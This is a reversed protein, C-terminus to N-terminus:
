CISIFSGPRPGSPGNKRRVRPGDAREDSEQDWLLGAGDTCLRGRMHTVNPFIDEWGKKCAFPTLPRRLRASALSLGINREKAWGGTAFLVYSYERTRVKFRKSDNPDPRYWFGPDGFHCTQRWIENESSRTRKKRVSARRPLPALLALEIM